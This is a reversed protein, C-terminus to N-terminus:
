IRLLMACSFDAGNSFTGCAILDGRKIIKKEIGHALSVPISSQFLNGFLEFSDYVQDPGFGLRDRWSQMLGMNPQHSLFFNIESKNVGSNYILEEVASVVFSISDDRLKRLMRRSFEIELPGPNEVHFPRAENELKKPKCVMLGFNDGSVKEVIGLISSPGREVLTASAGDGLVASKPNNQFDDLRSIFETVTLIVAKKYSTQSMLADAVKLLSVFSTCGTDIQMICANKLGTLEKVEPGIGVKARDNLACSYLLLDIDEPRVNSDDILKNLVRAGLKAASYDPYAFHREKPAHFWADKESTQESSKDTSQIVREPVFYSIYQIKAGIRDLVM